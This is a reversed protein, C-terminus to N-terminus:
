CLHYASHGFNAMHSSIALYIIMISFAMIRPTTLNITMIGLATKCLIMKSFATINVTTTMFTM